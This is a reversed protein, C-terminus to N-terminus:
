TKQEYRMHILAVIEGNLNKRAEVEYPVFGLSSYMLIARANFGFVSLHPVAKYQEQCIKVMHMTLAKGIGKGKHKESVIVNGIFASEGPLVNYLNAFAAIENQVISVTFNPRLEALKKLQAVDWPYSGSPYVLYLEEPSGVLNGIEEYHEVTAEIIQVSKDQFMVALYVDCHRM